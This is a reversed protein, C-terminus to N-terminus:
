NKICRVSYGDSKTFFVKYFSSDFFTLYRYWAISANVQTSSWWYASKAIPDFGGIGDRRAGPLGTFGSSNTAGANPNLWHATGTEKMAGGAISSQFSNGASTDAAPDISKVLINWEADSPIHWGAPALGRSDNVAHWNYLRGYTAAYTASDNDYWCWAGTGLAAWAIPDTVKPIPDGNRYTAVDLNKLMWVQTGITITSVPDTEAKKCDSLLLIVLFLLLLKKM